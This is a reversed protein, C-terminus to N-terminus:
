VKWCPQKKVVFTHGSGGNAEKEKSRRHEGNAPKQRKPSEFEDEAARERKEGVTSQEGATGVDKRM